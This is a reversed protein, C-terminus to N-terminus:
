NIQYLFVLIVNKQQLNVLQTMTYTLFVNDQGFNM